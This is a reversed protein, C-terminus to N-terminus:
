APATVNELTIQLGGTFRVTLNYLWANILGGIFGLVFYAVPFTIIAFIGFNPLIGPERHLAMFATMPLLLLSVLLGLVAYLIGFVLGCQLPDVHRLRTIGM